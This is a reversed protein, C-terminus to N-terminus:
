GYRRILPAVHQTKAGSLPPAGGPRHLHSAYAPPEGQKLVKYLTEHLTRQLFQCTQQYRLLRARYHPLLDAHDQPAREVEAMFQTLRVVADHLPKGEFSAAASEAADVLADFARADGM